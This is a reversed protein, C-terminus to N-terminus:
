PSWWVAKASKYRSGLNLVHVPAIPLCQRRLNNRGELGGYFGGLYGEGDRGWLPAEAVVDGNPSVQGDEISRSQAGPVLAASRDVFPHNRSLLEAFNKADGLAIEGEILLANCTDSSPQRHSPFEETSVHEAEALWGWKSACKSKQPMPGDVRSHFAILVIWTFRIISFHAEIESFAERALVAAIITGARLPM